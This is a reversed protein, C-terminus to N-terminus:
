SATVVVKGLIVRHKGATDVKIAGKSLTREQHPALTGTWTSSFGLTPIEIFMSFSGAVDGTNVADVKVSVSQGVSCVEPVVRPNGIVIM